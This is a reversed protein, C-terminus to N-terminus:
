WIAMHICVSAKVSKFTPVGACQLSVWANPLLTIIIPQPIPSSYNGNNWKWLHLMIIYNNPALLVHAQTHLIQGGQGIENNQVIRSIGWHPCVPSLLSGSYSTVQLQMPESFHHAYWNFGCWSKKFNSLWADFLALFPNVTDLYRWLCARLSVGVVIYVTHLCLVCVQGKKYTDCVMIHGFAYGKDWNEYWEWVVRIGCRLVTTCPLHM